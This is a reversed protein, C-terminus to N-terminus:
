RLRDSSKVMAEDKRISRSALVLFVLSILPIYMGFQYNSPIQLRNEFIRSYLLFVLAVLVVNLLVNINVLQFQNRRKKYLFITILAMVLSAIVLVLLPLTEWFFLLGPLDSYSKMGTAFLKYTGKGPDIYDIMPFFFLLTCAIAVIFLYLSQIRQIM